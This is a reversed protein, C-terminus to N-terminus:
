DTMFDIKEWRLITELVFNMCFLANERLLQNSDVYDSVVVETKGERDESLVASPVLQRFRQFKKPNTGLVLHIFEEDNPNFRINIPTQLMLIDPNLLGNESLYNLRQRQDELAIYFAASISRFVRPLDKNKLAEQATRFENRVQSNPILQFLGIDSYRIGFLKSVVDEIFISLANNLELIQNTMPTRGRKIFDSVLNNITFIQTKMSLEQGFRNKYELSLISWNKELSSTKLDKVSTIKKKSQETLIKLIIELASNLNFCAVLNSEISDDCVLLENKQLLLKVLILKKLTSQNINKTM